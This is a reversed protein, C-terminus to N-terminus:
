MFKWIYGGATKRKNQCVEGISSNSIGTQRKAEASSEYIQILNGEKDFQGVPKRKGSTKNNTKRKYKNLQPLKEYSWMYGKTRGQTKAARSINSNDIGTQRQAEKLSEYEALFNGELDYCYITKKTKAIAYKSNDGGDNLNYGDPYTHYFNIWYKEQRTLNSEDCVELIEFIFNEKGYKIFDLYLEMSGRGSLHQKWRDEIHVSKGIYSKNLVKNTIKYIGCTKIM